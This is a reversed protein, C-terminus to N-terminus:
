KKPKRSKKFASKKGKARARAIRRQNAKENDLKEDKICTYAYYVDGPDKLSSVFYPDVNQKPVAHVETEWALFNESEEDTDELKDLRTEPQGYSVVILQGTPMLVRDMEQLYRMVQRHPVEACYLADLLAKDIVVDFAQDEFNAALDCADCQMWQVGGLDNRNWLKPFELPAAEGKKRPKPVSQEVSIARHRALQQDIVVRSVDINMLSNYGDRQMEAALGSNGCGVILIHAEKDGILEDFLGKLAHYGHYWEFPEPNNLYREDWFDRKGYAAVDSPVPEYKAPDGEQQVKKRQPKKKAAPVIAGEAMM